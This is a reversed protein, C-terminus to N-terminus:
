LAPIPSCFIVGVVKADISPFPKTTREGKVRGQHGRWEGQGM